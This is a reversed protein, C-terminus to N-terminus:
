PKTEEGATQEGLVERGDAVKAAGLMGACGRHYTKGDVIMYTCPMVIEGECWQCYIPIASSQRPETM